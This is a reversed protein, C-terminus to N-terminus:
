IAGVIVACIATIVSVVSVMTPIVWYANDLLWQRWASRQLRKRYELGRATIIYSKPAVEIFYGDGSMVQFVRAARDDDPAPGYVEGPVCQSLIYLQTNRYERDTARIARRDRAPEPLRITM